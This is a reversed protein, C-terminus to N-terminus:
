LMLLLVVLHERGLAERSVLVFHVLHILSVLPFLVLPHELSELLFLVLLVLFRQMGKAMLLHSTISSSRLVLLVHKAHVVDTPLYIVKLQLVEQILTTRLSSAMPNVLRASSITTFVSIHKALPKM